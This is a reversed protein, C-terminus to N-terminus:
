KGALNSTELESERTRLQAVQERRAIGNEVALAKEYVHQICEQYAPSWLAGEHHKVHAIGRQADATMARVQLAVGSIAKRQWNEAVRQIVELRCLWHGIEDLETLVRDLQLAHEGWSVDEDNALRRLEAMQNEIQQADTRVNQLLDSAQQSYNSPFTPALGACSAALGTVPFLAVLSTLAVMEIWGLAHM